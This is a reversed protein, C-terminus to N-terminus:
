RAGPAPTPDPELENGGRLVIRADALQVRYREGNTQPDRDGHQVIGRQGSALELVRAGIPFRLGLPNRPASSASAASALRDREQDNQQKVQDVLSRIEPTTM